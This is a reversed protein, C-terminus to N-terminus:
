FNVTYVKSADLLYLKNTDKDFFLDRLDDLEDFVYQNKYTAGGTKDDKEYLVVRKASPELVYIARMDLETFIKTPNTLPELPSNKIPFSETNGSYLKTITGNKQLVYISGDIAFSIGNKIDANINYGQAVDFKDRRRIYKWIQNADADLIYFNNRYSNVAVGKRFASDTTDVFTMRGDKYEVVKGAKSFFLLSNADAYATGAIIEENEDISLPDQVKDLIIPYLANYEYAYLTGKLFLLGLASVNQRKQSLDVLVSTKPRIVGDLKERTDQINQLYENAKSRHYGSNLVELAKKEADALMQGAHEKNFQGNTEASAIEERVTTLVDDYQDIVKQEDSKAKLWWVGGGLFVFVAVAGIIIKTAIGSSASRNQRDSVIKSRLDDVSRTLKGVMDKLVATSNRSPKQSGQYEEKTLHSTIQGKEEVSLDAGAVPSLVVGTMGVKSLIEASLFDKLEGLSAILNKSSSIKALDNKSIYRLLRTSSLLIYDGPELSGSAINGFFDESSEDQLGESITTCLRKRILYAEADGRQTLFLNNGVIAAILVHLNGIYKSPKSNKIDALAKNVAKVADEFRAYPDKDPEAFFVKRMSDFISESIGEAEVPNNQIELNIFIKGSAENGEGLDYGYNEVFNGEDRGIFLFEYQSQLSM